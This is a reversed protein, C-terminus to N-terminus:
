CNRHRETRCIDRGKGGVALDNGPGGTLIDDGLYGILRDDGPGGDAVLHPWTGCYGTHVIRLVDNGSNGRMVASCQLSTLVNDNNDGELVVRRAYATVNVFSELNLSPAGSVKVHGRTMTIDLRKSPRGGFIILEDEGPGADVNAVLDRELDVQDNGAAMFARVPAEDYRGHKSLILNNDGNTGLFDLSRYVANRLNVTEVRTLRSITSGALVRGRGLNIRWPDTPTNAFIEVQDEGAEGDIHGSPIGTIRVHTNGSGLRFEDSNSLSGGSEGVGGVAYEVGSLISDDGGTGIVTDISPDGALAVDASDGVDLRTDGGTMCILDPGAGANVRRAGNTVIVDPGDTGELVDQGPTGIVTAEQQDCTTNSVGAATADTLPVLTAATAILLPLTHTLM